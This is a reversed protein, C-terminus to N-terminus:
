LFISSTQELKLEELPLNNPKTFGQFLFDPRNKPLKRLGSRQGPLTCLPHDLPRDAVSSARWSSRQGPVIGRSRCTCRGAGTADRKMSRLRSVQVPLPGAPPLSSIQALCSILASSPFIRKPNNSVGLTGIYISCSTFGLSHTSFLLSLILVITSLSVQSLSLSITILESLLPNLATRETSTPLNQQVM